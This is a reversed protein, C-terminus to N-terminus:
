KVAVRDVMVGVNRDDPTGLVSRPKWTPTVLKLEVPDGAGAARAALEPPIAFRYPLFGGRVRATGLLQGHLYVSVDASDVTPPRGGDSMWLTV